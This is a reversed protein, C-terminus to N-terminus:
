EGAESQELWELVEGIRMASDRIDERGAMAVEPIRTMEISDLLTRDMNNFYQVWWTDRVVTSTIRCNGFGRSLIVVPGPALVAALYTGDAPSLPLLTLNIVHTPDDEGRTASRDAIEALVPLASMVGVPPEVQPLVPRSAGQSAAVLVEPVPGVELLDRVVAGASNCVRVRWVGAFVSEQAQVPAEGSMTASVEGEGLVQDLLKRNADDLSALDLRQSDGGNAYAEAAEHLWRLVGLAEDLGVAEEPEPLDPMSFTSMGKPMDLYKLDDEEAPQSGPGISVVPIPFPKM